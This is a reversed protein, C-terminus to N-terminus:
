YIFICGLFLLLLVYIVIKRIEQVESTCSRAEWWERRRAREAQPRLRM